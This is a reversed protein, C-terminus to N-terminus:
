RGRPLSWLLALLARRQLPDAVNRELPRTSMQNLDHATRSILICSSEIRGSDRKHEHAGAGLETDRAGNSRWSQM